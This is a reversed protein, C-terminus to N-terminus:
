NAGRMSGAPEIRPAFQHAPNLFYIQRRTGIALRDKSVAIGMVQDFGHFAFTLKGAHSGIVLLKGAQYTSVLLTVQLQELVHAFNQTHEFQVESLKTENQLVISM